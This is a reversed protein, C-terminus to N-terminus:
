FFNDYNYLLALWSGNSRSSVRGLEDHMTRVQLMEPFCCLSAVVYGVMFLFKQWRRCEALRYLEKIDKMYLYKLKLQREQSTCVIPVGQVIPVCEEVTRGAQREYGNDNLSM